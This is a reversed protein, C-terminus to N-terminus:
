GDAVERKKKKKVKYTCIRPKKNRTDLNSTKICTSELIKNRMTSNQKQKAHM